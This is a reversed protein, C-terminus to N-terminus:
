LSKQNPSLVAKGRRKKSEAKKKTCIHDESHEERKKGM